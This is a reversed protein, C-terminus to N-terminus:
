GAHDFWDDGKPEDEDTGLLCLAELQEAGLEISLRATGTSQDAAEVHGTSVVQRLLRHALLNAERGPFAVVEGMIAEMQM